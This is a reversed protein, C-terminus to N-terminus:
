VGEKKVISEVYLRPICFWVSYSVIAEDRWRDVRRGVNAMRASLEFRRVVTQAVM